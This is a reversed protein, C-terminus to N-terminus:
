KAITPDSTPPKPKEPAKPGKPPMPAAPAARELEFGFHAHVGVPKGTILGVVQGITQQVDPTTTVILKDGDLKTELVKAKANGKLFAELAKAKEATLTYTVRTLHVTSADEVAVTRYFHTAAAAPQAIRGIKEDVVIVRKRSEPAIEATEIKGDAIRFTLQAQDKSEPQGVIKFDIGEGKREGQLEIRLPQGQKSAEARIVKNQVEIKKGSRLAHIEKLLAELRAELAALRQDSVAEEVKQTRATRPAETQGQALALGPLAFLTLTLLLRM